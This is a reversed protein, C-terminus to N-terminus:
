FFKYRNSLNLSFIASFQDNRRWFFRSKEYKQTIKHVFVCNKSLIKNNELLGIDGAIAQSLCLGEPEQPLVRNLDM